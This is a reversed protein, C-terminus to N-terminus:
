ILMLLIIQVLLWNLIIQINMKKKSERVKIYDDVFNNTKEVWRKNILYLYDDEKTPTQDSKIQYKNEILNKILGKLKIYNRKNLNNEKEIDRFTKICNQIYDNIKSIIENRLNTLLIRCENDIKSSQRM